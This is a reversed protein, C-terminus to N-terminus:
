PRPETKLARQLAERIVQATVLDPEFGIVPVGNILLVDHRPNFLHGGLEAVPIVEVRALKLLAVRRKDELRKTLEWCPDCLRTHSGVHADSDGCMSCPLVDSFLLANRLTHDTKGPTNAPTMLKAVYDPDKELFAKNQQETMHTKGGGHSIMDVTILDGPEVDKNVTVLCAQHYDPPDGTLLDDGCKHCFASM